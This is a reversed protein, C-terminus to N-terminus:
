SDRLTFFDDTLLLEMASLFIQMVGAAPLILRCSNVRNLKYHMKKAYQGRHKAKELQQSANAWIASASM